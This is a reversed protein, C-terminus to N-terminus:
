GKKGARQRSRESLVRLVSTQRERADEREQQVAEERRNILEFQADLAERQMRLQTRAQRSAIAWNMLGGLFSAGLVGWMQGEGSSMRSAAVQTAPISFTANGRGDLQVNGTGQDAPTVSFGGSSNRLVNFSSYDGWGLRQVMGEFGPITYPDGANLGRLVRDGPLTFYSATAGNERALQAATPQPSIGTGSRASPVAPNNIWYDENATLDPGLPENEPAV